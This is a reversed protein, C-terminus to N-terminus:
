PGKDSGMGEAVCVFLTDAGRAPACTGDVDLEDSALVATDLEAEDDDIDAGDSLEPLVAVDDEDVSAM